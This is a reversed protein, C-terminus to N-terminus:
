GNYSRAATKIIRKVAARLLSTVTVRKDLAVQKLKHNEDETIRLIIPKMM